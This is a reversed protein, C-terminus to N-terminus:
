DGEKSKIIQKIIEARKIDRQNTELMKGLFKQLNAPKTYLIMKKVTLDDLETIIGLDTGLKVNSLLNSCEDSNLKRANTLIGYSRYVKDELEIGNKALYKRALREQEVVKKTINELNLIIEKEDMGLTQINSIQYIDGKSQSDEGYMGRITMGFNNVIHLIKSLNGTIKLAPLHVMVSARLGTGVNTPCATLYGYKENCSFGLLEDLKNDIEVALNLTNQLDLGSTFVQLRIHDEENLMICINEEDNILIAEDDEALALEPSIINKEVLSMKTIDDMDKLYMFKLGYGIQPTIFKIKELMKEKQVKSMRIKFPFEKINRALRVRSSVIVDSEKGNELYWSM